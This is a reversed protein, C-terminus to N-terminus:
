TRRTFILCGAGPRRRRYGLLHFIEVPFWRAVRPNVRLANKREPDRSVGPMLPLLADVHLRRLAASVWLWFRNVSRVLFFGDAGQKQYLPMLLRGREPAVVEGSRDRALVEGKQVPLFGCLGPKMVFEDGDRLRHRYRVEVVRPLGDCAARLRRRWEVRAPLDRLDLLETAVLTLWIVAEHLDVSGPADHQGAEVVMARHGRDGAYDILTGRISEELGLIVPVPLYFALRRNRLSDSMLAFPPSDGSTTHLDLLVLPGPSHNVADDLIRLLEEQERDEVSQGSGGRARVDRLREATWCRNLDLDVYRRRKQLAALNGAVAIVEGRIPPREEAMRELVRQAALVGAPENGHLGGCILLTPGPKGASYRGLIRDFRRGELLPVPPKGSM